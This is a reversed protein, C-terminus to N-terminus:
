SGSFAWGSVPPFGPFPQGLQGKTKRCNADNGRGDWGRATHVRYPSMPEATASGDEGLSDFWGGDNSSFDLM